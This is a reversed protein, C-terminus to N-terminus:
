GAAAAASAPPLESVRRALSTAVAEALGAVTFPKRLIDYGSLDEGEGAEGAYGTVFLIAIWPYLAAAERVLEPGTMEPMMIDTIILEIGPERRLIELAEKGGSCAIPRHGLEVLSSVTARSVRPDDEVVLISTNEPGAAREPRPDIFEAKQVAAEASRPLYLTVTTGIGVESRITVDGGSQRAFGFIQSLGLGTGKGIPKTTFFPEFVRDLNEPSIGSGTDAVSIRVYDGAVLEGQAEDLTVNDIAIELQGEGDMADRGNVALNLIASELQNTDVRVQWKEDSFRTSVNIREGISRDILDLMNEILEAPAVGVTLLPEARAFALLRRTLAAARVAGEMASDLHFEVDRKSGSLKRRALDLGGLVVALMNNFDHAIGGTLQGVAEMKQVQRLQAEAAEREHAEARLRENAVVLAHTREQVAQELTQARYAESDAERLAALRESIARFAAMGLAIAGLGILVALWGLWEALQDAQEGSRGTVAMRRRLDEREAAAIAALKDRLDPGRETMGAQYFLSIGGSGRKGRAAAAAGALERGREEYLRELDRVRARQNVDLHVLRRLEEIQRGALRWESYYISGTRQEEDLVYRGLAAEARAITADATRTLLMVDYSHREWALARERDRNSLTVMTMLAILLLTAVVAGASALRGWSTSGGDSIADLDDGPM